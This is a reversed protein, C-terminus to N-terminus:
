SRQEAICATAGEVAVYAYLLKEAHVLDILTTRYAMINQIDTYSDM